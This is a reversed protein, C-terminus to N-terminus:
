NASINIIVGASKRFVLKVDEYIFFILLLVLGLYGEFSFRLEEADRRNTIRNAYCCWVFLRFFISFELFHTLMFGLIFM